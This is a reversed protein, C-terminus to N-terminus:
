TTAGTPVELMFNEDWARIRRKMAVRDPGSHRKLLSLTLRRLWAFTERMHKNRIRSEDERDTIDLSWHYLLYVQPALGKLNGPKGSTRAPGASNGADPGPDHHHVIISYGEWRV